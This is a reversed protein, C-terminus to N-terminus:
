RLSHTRLRASRDQVMLKGLRCILIEDVDQALGPPPESSKIVKAPPEIVATVAHDDSAHQMLSHLRQAM